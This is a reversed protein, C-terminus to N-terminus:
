DLCNPKRPHPIPHARPQADADFLDAVSTRCIRPQRHATVLHLQPWVPAVAAIMEVQGAPGLAFPHFAACDCLVRRGNDVLGRGRTALPCMKLHSQGADSPTKQQKIALQGRDADTGAAVNTLSGSLLLRTSGPFVRKPSLCIHPPPAHQDNM